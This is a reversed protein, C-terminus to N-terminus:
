CKTLFDAVFFILELLTAPFQFGVISSPELYDLLTIYISFIAAVKIASEDIL